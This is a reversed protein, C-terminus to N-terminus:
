PYLSHVDVGTLIRGLAGLFKQSQPNTPAQHWVTSFYPTNM